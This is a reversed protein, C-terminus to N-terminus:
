EVLIIGTMQEPHASCHYPYIGAKDFTVSFTDGTLLEKSNMAPYYTHSPHSDTNVYHPAQGNNTWTVTTGTTIRILSDNITFDALEVDVASKGRMDTFNDASSRDIAFQFSGDHCSNDPWCAKYEVAYLGDPADADMTRRLVLKNADVTASGKGYEKGNNTISLESKPSLDFDFDIVVNVPVAALTAGHEPTNSVWHPTKTPNAFTGSSPTTTTNTDSAAANGNATNDAVTGNTNTETTRTSFVVALATLIVIIILIPILIKKM